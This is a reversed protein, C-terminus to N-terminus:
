PAASIETEKTRLCVLKCQWVVSVPSICRATHRSVGWSEHSM